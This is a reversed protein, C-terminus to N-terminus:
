LQLLLIKIFKILISTPLLLIQMYMVYCILSEYNRDGGSFELLYGLSKDLMHIHYAVILNWIVM